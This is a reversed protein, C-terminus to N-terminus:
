SPEEVEERWAALTDLPLEQGRRAAEYKCIERIEDDALVRNREKAATFIAEVLHPEPEIGHEHLWHVINSMGSMFGVEIRQGRGV